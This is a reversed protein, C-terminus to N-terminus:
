MRGQFISNSREGVTGTPPVRGFRMMQGSAPPPSPTSPCVLLCLTVRCEGAELLLLESVGDKGTDHGGSSLGLLMVFGEGPAVTVAMPGHVVKVSLCVAEQSLDRSAEKEALGM